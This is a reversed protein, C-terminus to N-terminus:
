GRSLPVSSRADTLLELARLVADNLFTGGQVVVSQGLDEPSKLKIV